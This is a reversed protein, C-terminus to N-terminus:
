KEWRGVEYARGPTGGVVIVTTPSAMAEFKRPTPGEVM